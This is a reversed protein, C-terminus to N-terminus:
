SAIWNGKKAWHIGIHLLNKDEKADMLYQIKEMDVAKCM